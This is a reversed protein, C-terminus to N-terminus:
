GTMRGLYSMRQKSLIGFYKQVEKNKLLDTAIKALEKANFKCSNIVIDGIQVADPVQEIDKQEKKEMTHDEMTNISSEAEPKTYPLAYNIGM